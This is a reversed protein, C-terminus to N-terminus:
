ICPMTRMRISRGSNTPTSRSSPRRASTSRRRRLANRRHPPITPDAVGNDRKRVLAHLVHELLSPIGISTTRPADDPAPSTDARARAANGLRELRHAARLVELRQGHQELPDLVDGRSSSLRLRARGRASLSGASCASSASSSVAADVCRLPRQRPRSGDPAEGIDGAKPRRDISEERFHEDHGVVLAQLRRPQRQHRVEAVEDECSASM